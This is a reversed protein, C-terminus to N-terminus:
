HNNQAIVGYYNGDAIKAAIRRVTVSIPHNSPLILSGLESMWQRYQYEALREENEKSM